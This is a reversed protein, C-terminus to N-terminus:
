RRQQTTGNERERITQLTKIVKGLERLSQPSAGVTGARREAAKLETRLGRNEEYVAFVRSSLQAAIDKAIKRHLDGRIGPLEARVVRLIATYFQDRLDTKNM